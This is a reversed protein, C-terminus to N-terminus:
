VPEGANGGSGTRDTGSPENLKKGNNKNPETNGPNPDSKESGDDIVVEKRGIIQTVKAM